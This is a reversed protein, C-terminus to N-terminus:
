TTAYDWRRVKIFTMRSHTGWDRELTVDGAGRHLLEFNMEKGLDGYLGCVTAYIEEPEEMRRYM